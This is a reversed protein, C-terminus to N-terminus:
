TGSVSLPPALHFPKTAIPRMFISRLIRNRFIAVRTAVIPQWFGLVRLALLVGGRFDCACGSHGGTGRTHQRTSPRAPADVVTEAWM